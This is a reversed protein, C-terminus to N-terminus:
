STRVVHVAVAKQPWQLIQSVLGRMHRYRIVSKYRNLIGLTMGERQGLVFIAEHKFTRM